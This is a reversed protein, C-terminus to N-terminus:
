ELGYAGAPPIRAGGVHGLRGKPLFRPEILFMAGVNGRISDMTFGVSTLFSEGVRTITLSEGLTWNRGFDVSVGASSVWKPSMWYSYSVGLVDSRIPGELVSMGIYFNGRPPRSLNAGAHFIKQGDKFFDVIGDTMLTLRDGVHWRANYDLLGVTKGFNDRDAEPFLTFHTDFVIWDIIHRQGPMGRKTQWRQEIGFRIMAMRDAVEASPSTVWNGLGYRLAYLREDFQNPVSGVTMPTSGFTIVQFHRRFQEINDEDLPDYLPLVSQGNSEYFSRNADSFAAEAEFVMKHAVGHVNFLDSEVEPSVNWVPMSARLGVQGYARDFPQGNLDEGWHGLEGLLYPVIKVPGAQFPWDLEQRTVFREGSAANREWSLQTFIPDFVPNSPAAAPNFRAYALSSHEFWTLRDGLLPQGIQFHDLRPLWDTQNYFDNVRIDASLAISWNDVKKKLELGTTLDKAEDWERKFYQEFFNRDSLITSELTLRIDYPLIHRHRKLFRYRYNQELPIGSRYAGITDHGTDYIGWYDTIGSYPAQYGFFDDRSYLFTAGHGLGRASFYDLSLDLDTGEPRHTVGFVQYLDFNTLFQTGFVQDQRFQARRIFYEPNTADTAFVPWYFVPVEGLYLFTNRGSILRQHEVLPQGSAADAAPEGTFPDAAPRQIDEFYVEGVEARYGPVGLRSSTFSGQRAFFHAQDAQELTEARLRLLGEYKAVPTYLEANLIVGRHHRVDYYMRDAYIVRNGQRFVINGEMYLELPADHSQTAGEALNSNQLGATWIVMRDTSVDISDFNALGDVIMNIGSDVVGIWLGSAADQSWIAQVGVSSRQFARVRRAGAPAAGAPIPATYQTPLVPGPAPPPERQAMGRAFIPPPTPPLGSVRDVHVDVAAMTTLRGLWTQDTLQSKTGANPQNVVVDGELYIIAKSPQRDTFDARHIWVVGDRAQATTAGQIIRCDGELVWVEYAGQMWHSASPAEIRIPQTSDPLPLEIQGAARGAALLAALM